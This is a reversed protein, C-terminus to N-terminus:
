CSITFYASMATFHVPGLASISNKVVKYSSALLLYRFTIAPFGHIM